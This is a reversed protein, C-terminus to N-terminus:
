AGAAPLPVRLMGGRRLLHRVVQSALRSVESPDTSYHAAEDFVAAILDGLRVTGHKRRKM